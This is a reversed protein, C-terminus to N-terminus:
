KKGDLESIRSEIEDWIEDPIAVELNAQARRNKRLKKICERSCCVYAGRGSKKGTADLSIEGNPDRVIRVLESKAKHEGCGLCQRMPVKRPANQPAKGKASM